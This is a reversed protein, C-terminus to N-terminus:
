PLLMYLRAEGQSARYVGLPYLEGRSAIRQIVDSYEMPQEYFAEHVVVYRVGLGFLHRLSEDDPFGAIRAVTEVFEGPYYGSYGNVLPQWHMLSWYMYTAERGPLRDLRAIPLELVPGPGFRRIAAYMERTQPPDVNLDMLAMDRTANDIVVLWLLGLAPVLTGVRRSITPLSCVVHAGFGALMAFASGAIIGFRSPSRFGHMADVAGALWTYLHGNLGMSLEVSIAALAFYVLVIRRPRFATAAITLVITMAGPFLRLEPGGWGATWGWRASQIPSSLYSMLTASYTTVEALNRSGITSATQFYRLAYPLVMAAAILGGVALRPLARAVKRPYAVLLVALFAVVTIALFGGYYVCSFTQLAFCFGAVLGYGWSGTEVTRHIAWFTLPVWMAWQLELHMFHEIRYPAMTFIAGSVLAPGRANVLHRALVFMAFGSAAMGGLLLLNYVLIPAMGLWLLPAALTGQLLMADSFTLTNRAPYFINGDFLRAPETGLAHAVWALRWISFLPDHHSAVYTGLHAAQPWTVVVTLAIFVVAPIVGDLVLRSRIM